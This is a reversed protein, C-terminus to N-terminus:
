KAVPIKYKKVADKNAVCEDPYFIELVDMVPVGLTDAYVFARSISLKFVGKINTNVNPNDIGCAKSFSNVSTFGQKHMLELFRDKISVEEVKKRSM